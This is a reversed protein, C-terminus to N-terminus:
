VFVLNNYDVGHTFFGDIRLERGDDFQIILDNGTREYNKVHAEHVAILFNTPQGSARVTTMTPNIPVDVHNALIASSTM